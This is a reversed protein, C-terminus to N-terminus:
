PHNSAGAVLSSGKFCEVNQLTMQDCKMLQCDMSQGFQDDDEDDDDNNNNNNNNNKICEDIEDM